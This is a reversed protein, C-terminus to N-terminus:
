RKHAPRRSPAPLLGAQTLITGIASGFMPALQPALPLLGAVLDLSQDVLARTKQQKPSADHIFYLMVGMHLSWLALVLVRRAAADLM